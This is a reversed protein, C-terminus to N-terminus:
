KEPISSIEENCRRKSTWSLVLEEESICSDKVDREELQIGLKGCIGMRAQQRTKSALGWHLSGDRPFGGLVYQSVRDRSLEYNENTLTDWCIMELATWGDVFHGPERRSTLLLMDVLANMHMAFPLTLVGRPVSTRSKSRWIEFEKVLAPNYGADMPDYQRPHVRHPGHPEKKSANSTPFVATPSELEKNTRVDSSNLPARSLPPQTLCAKEDAEAIPVNESSLRVQQHGICTKKEVARRHDDSDTEAREMDPKISTCSSAKM